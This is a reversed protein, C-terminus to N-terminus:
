KNLAVFELNDKLHPNSVILEKNSQHLNCATLKGHVRLKFEINVM